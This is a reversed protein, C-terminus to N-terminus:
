EGRYAVEGKVEYQRNENIFVVEYRRGDLSFEDWRDMDADYKGLLKYSPRVAEGNATFREVAGDGLPILRMRQPALPAPLGKVSGGAGDSTWVSRYLVVTLHDAEIFASTLMRQVALEAGAIM